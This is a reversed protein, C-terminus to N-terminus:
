KMLVTREGMIKYILDGAKQSLSSGVVKLGTQFVKFFGIETQEDKAIESTKGLSYNLYVLWLSIIIIMSVASFIFLWRKKTQESSNQIKEILLKM